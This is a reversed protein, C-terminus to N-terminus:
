IAGRTGRCCAGSNVLVFLAAIKGEHVSRRETFVHVKV